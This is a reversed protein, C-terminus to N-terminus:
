DSTEEIQNVIEIVAKYAARLVTEAPQREAGSRAYEKTIEIAQNLAKFKQDKTAM